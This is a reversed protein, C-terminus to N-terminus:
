SSRRRVEAEIRAVVEEATLATVDSLETTVTVVHPPREDAILNPDIRERTTEAAFSGMTFTGPALKVMAPCDACDRFPEAATAGAALCGFLLAILLGGLARGM